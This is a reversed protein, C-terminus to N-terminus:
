PTNLIPRSLCTFHIRAGDFSPLFWQGTFEQFGNVSIAFWNATVFIAYTFVRIEVKGVRLMGGPKGAFPREGNKIVAITSM